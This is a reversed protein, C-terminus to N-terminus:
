KENMFNRVFRDKLPHTRTVPQKRYVERIDHEFLYQELDDVEEIKDIDIGISGLESEVREKNITGEKISERISDVVM